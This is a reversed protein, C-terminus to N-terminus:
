EANKKESSDEKAGSIHKFLVTIDFFINEGDEFSYVDVFRDYKEHNVRQHPYKKM